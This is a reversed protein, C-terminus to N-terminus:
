MPGPARATVGGVERRLRAITGSAAGHRAERRQQLSMGGVSGQLMPTIAAIFGVRSHRGYLSYAAEALKLQQRKAMGSPVVYKKFIFGRAAKTGKTWPPPTAIVCGFATKAM